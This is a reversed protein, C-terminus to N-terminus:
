QIKNNVVRKGPPLGSPVSGPREAEATGAAARQINSSPLSAFSRFCPCCVNSLICPSVFRLPPRLPPSPFPIHSYADLHHNGGVGLRCAQEKAEAEEEKVRKRRRRGGKRHAWGGGQDGRHGGPPIFPAYHLTIRTSPSTLSWSFYTVYKTTPLHPLPKPPLLLPLLM